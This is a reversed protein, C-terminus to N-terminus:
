NGANRCGKLSFVVSLDNNKGKRKVLIVKNALTLKIRVRSVLDISIRSKISIKIEICSVRQSLDNEGEQLILKIPCVDARSKSHKPSPIHLFPDECHSCDRRQSCRKAEEEWVSFKESSSKRQLLNFEV